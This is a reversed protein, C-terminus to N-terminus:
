MGELTEWTYWTGEAQPALPTVFDRTWESEEASFRIHVSPQLLSVWGNYSTYEYEEGPTFSRMEETTRNFM